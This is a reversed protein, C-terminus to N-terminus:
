EAGGAPHLSIAFDPCWLECLRCGTCRDGAAVSPIGDADESFVERPCLAVCIGCGKCRSLQIEVITREKTAM